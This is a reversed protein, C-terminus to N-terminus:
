REETQKNERIDYLEQLRRILSDIMEQRDQADIEGFSHEARLASISGILNKIVLQSKKEEEAALRRKNKTRVWLNAVFEISGIILPIWIDHPLCLRNRGWQGRHMNSGLDIRGVLAYGCDILVSKPIGASEFLSLALDPHRELAQRGAQDNILMVFKEIVDGQHKTVGLKSYVENLIEAEEALVMKDAQLIMMMNIALVYKLNTSSNRLVTFCEDTDPPEVIFSRIKNQTEESMSEIDMLGFIQMVEEDSVFGDSHAAAFVLGYFAVMQEELELNPPQKSM